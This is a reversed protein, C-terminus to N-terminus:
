LVRTNTEGDSKGSTGGSEELAGKEKSLPGNMGGHDGQPLQLLQWTVPDQGENPGLMLWGPEEKTYSPILCPILFVREWPLLQPIYFKSPIPLWQEQWTHFVARFHSLNVSWSSYLCSM